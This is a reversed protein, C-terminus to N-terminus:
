ANYQLDLVVLGLVPGNARLVSEEALRHAENALRRAAPLRGMKSKLRANALQIVAQTMLKEPSNQPCNMWVAELVEHAEWFYGNKLFALGYLWAETSTIQDPSVGEASAKISDFLEEPHRPTQGPVYAHPPRWRTM